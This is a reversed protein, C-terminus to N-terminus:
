PKSETIEAILQPLAALDFGSHVVLLLPMGLDRIRSLLAFLASQDIIPGYLRTQGNPLHQMEMGDFWDRWREDLCGQLIILYLPAQTSTKKNEM